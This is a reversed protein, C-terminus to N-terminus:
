RPPVITPLKPTSFHNIINHSPGLIIPSCPSLQMVETDLKVPPDPGDSGIMTAVNKGDKM